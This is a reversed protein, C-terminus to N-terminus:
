QAVSGDANIFGGFMLQESEAHYKPRDRYTGVCVLRLTSRPNILPGSLGRLRDPGDVARWDTSHLGHESAWNAAQSRNGAWILLRNPRPQNRVFLLASQWNEGTERMRAMVAKKLITPM